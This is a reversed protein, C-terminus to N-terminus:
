SVHCLSLFIKSETHLFFPGNAIIVNCYNSHVTFRPMFFLKKREDFYNAQESNTPTFGLFKSYDSTWVHSRHPSVVLKEFLLAPKERVHHELLYM